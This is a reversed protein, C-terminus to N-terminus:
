SISRVTVTFVLTKGALPHNFDITANGNAVAKIVGMAGTATYVNTGVEATINSENLTAVSVNIVYKDSVEGYADEPPLTIVKTENVKMGMVGKEFGPIMMGAGVKFELPDYSPRPELKAKKAEAEISTDFVTGNELKGVYDVAVTSGNIVRKVLDSANIKNM